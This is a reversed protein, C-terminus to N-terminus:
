SCVRQSRYGNVVAVACTDSLLLKAWKLLGAGAGMADMVSFLFARDLTDYAKAFDLFAVMGSRGQHTLLHPLTRLFLVNAGILRGPLFASQELTIVDALALGVRSALVKALLRYDTCLLTIPRYNGALTRDGRGKWLVRIVGDLFGVPLLGTEGIASFVRALISALQGKFVKYIATPLRDWGPAKGLPTAKLAALVEAESVQSEGVRDAVEDRLRLNRTRVASLVEDSAEVSLGSSKCSIDRWYDAVLQPLRGPASVLRGVNDQLAAVTHCAAPPKVVATIAPSPREGVRLWSVRSEYAAHAAEARSAIAVRAQAEVLDELNATSSSGAASQQTQRAARIADQLSQGPMRRRRQAVRSLTNAAAALRRKFGAWWNVTAPLDERSPMTTEEQVIWDEMSQRLDSHATFFTRVRRVGPGRAAM